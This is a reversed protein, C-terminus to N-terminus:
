SFACVPVHFPRSYEYRRNQIRGFNALPSSSAHGRALPLFLFTTYNSIKASCFCTELFCNSSPFFPGRAFGARTSANGAANTTEIWLIAVSWSGDGRVFPRIVDCLPRDAAFIILERLSESELIVGGLVHNALHYAVRATDTDVTLAADSGSFITIEDVPVEM